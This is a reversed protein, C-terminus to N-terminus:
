NINEYYARLPHTNSDNSSNLFRIEGDDFRKLFFNDPVCIKTKTDISLVWQNNDFYFHKSFSLSPIILSVLVIWRTIFIPNRIFLEM